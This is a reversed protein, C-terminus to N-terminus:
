FVEGERYDHTGTNNPIMVGMPKVVLPTKVFCKVVAFPKSEVLSLLEPNRNTLEITRITAMGYKILTSNLLFINQSPMTVLQTSTRARVQRMFPIDLPGAPGTQAMAEMEAMTKVTTWDKLFQARGFLSSDMPRTKPMKPAKIRTKGPM